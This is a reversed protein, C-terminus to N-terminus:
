RVGQTRQTFYIRIGWCIMSAQPPAFMEGFEDRSETGMRFAAGALFGVIGDGSADMFLPAKVEYGISNQACFGRV